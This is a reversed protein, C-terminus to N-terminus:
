EYNELNLHLFSEACSVVAFGNEGLRGVHSNGGYNM